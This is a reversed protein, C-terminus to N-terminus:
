DGLVNLVLFLLSSLESFNFTEEEARDIMPNLSIYDPEPIDSTFM